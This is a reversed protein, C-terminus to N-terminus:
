ATAVAVRLRKLLAAAVVGAVAGLTVHWAVDVAVAVAPWSVFSAANALNWASSTLLNVTAGTAAGAALTLTPRQSLLGVLSTAIILELLLLPAPQADHMSRIAPALAAFERDFFGAALVTHFVVNAPLVTAFVGVVALARKLM